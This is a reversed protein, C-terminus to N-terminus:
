PAVPRDFQAITPGVNFRYEVKFGRWAEPTDGKWDRKRCHLYVIIGTVGVGVFGPQGPYGSRSGFLHKRLDLAAEGLKEQITM